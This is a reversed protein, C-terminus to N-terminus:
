YRALLGVERLKPSWAYQGSPRRAQKEAHLMARTVDRDIADYNAQLHLPSLFPAQLVLAEVRSWLKHDDAYAKFSASHKDVAAQDESRIGRAAPYAIVAIPGMLAVFDLDIFLGRHM